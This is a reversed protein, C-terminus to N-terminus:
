SRWNEIQNAFIFGNIITVFRNRTQVLDSWFNFCFKDFTGAVIQHESMCIHYIFSDKFEEPFLRYHFFQVHASVRLCSLLLGLVKHKTEGEPRRGACVVARGGIQMENRQASQSSQSPVEKERNRVGGLEKFADQV